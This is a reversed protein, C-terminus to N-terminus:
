STEPTTKKQEKWYQQQKMRIQKEAMPRSIGRMAMGGEESHKKKHEDKKKDKEEM